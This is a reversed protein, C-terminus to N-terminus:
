SDTIKPTLTYTGNFSAVGTDGILACAPYNKKPPAHPFKPNQIITFSLSAGSITDVGTSDNYTGNAPADTGNPNGEIICEKAATSISIVDNTGGKIDISDGAGLTEGGTDAADNYRETWTGLTGVLSVCPLATCTGIPAVTPPTPPAPVKLNDTCLGFKPNGAPMFVDTYSPAPILSTETSVTCTVKVANGDTTLANTGGTKDLVNAVDSTVTFSVAGSNIAKVKLNTTIANGDGSGAAMVVPVTILVSAVAAGLIIRKM